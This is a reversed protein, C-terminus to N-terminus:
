FPQEDQLMLQSCLRWAASDRSVLRPCRAVVEELPHVVLDTGRNGIMVDGDIAPNGPARGLQVIDAAGAGLLGALMNDSASPSGGRAIHGLSNIRADMHNGWAEAIETSSEIRERLDNAWNAGARKMVGEAVVLIFYRYDRRAGAVLRRMIADPDWSEPVEPIAVHAAGGAVAAGLALWGATNGMVELIVARRHSEVTDRIKRMADVVNNLATDFGISQESGWIDNDITAPLGIVRFSRQPFTERFSRAILTAGRFSGDGGIVLLDSIGMQFLNATAVRLFSQQAALRADRDPADDAPPRLENVRGTGIFTGGRHIIDRVASRDVNRDTATDLRGALGRFGDRFFVIERGPERMKIARFVARVAANMGPADGGSTLIGVTM